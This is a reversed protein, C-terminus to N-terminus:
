GLELWHKLCVCEQISNDSLLSRKDTVLHKASSFVREVAASSAPIPLYDRAINALTPMELRNGSWWEMVGNKNTTVDGELYRDIESKKTLKIIKNMRGTLSLATTPSQPSSDIADTTGGYRRYVANFNSLADDIWENEWNADQYFKLRNTPDIITAVPYVQSGSLTYFKTIKKLSANIADKISEPLDPEDLKDELADIVCNYLPVARSLTIVNSAAMMESAEDFITLIPQLISLMDWEEQTLDQDQLDHLSAAASRIASQLQIARQIM